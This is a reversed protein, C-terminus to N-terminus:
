TAYAKFIQSGIKGRGKPTVEVRGLISPCCEEPEFGVQSVRWGIGFLTGPMKVLEWGIPKDPEECSQISGDECMVYHEGAIPVTELKSGYEYTSATRELGESPKKLPFGDWPIKFTTGPTLFELMEFYSGKFDKDFSFNAYPSYEMQRKSKSVLRRLVSQKRQTSPASVLRAHQSASRNM